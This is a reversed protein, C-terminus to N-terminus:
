VSAEDEKDLSVKLDDSTEAAAAAEAERREAQARAIVQHKLEIAQFLDTLSLNAKITSAIRQVASIITLITWSEALYPEAGLQAEMSAFANDLNFDLIMEGVGITMVSVDTVESEAKKEQIKALVEEFKDPAMTFEVSVCLHVRGVDNITEEDERLVGGSRFTLTDLYEATLGTEEITERYAVKKVLESFQELTLNYVTVGKDGPVMHVDDSATVGEPLDDVSDIHGGFGVSTNGQLRAEGEGQAPRRYKVYKLASAVPDYTVFSVYPILQLYGHEEDECVDRPIFAVPLSVPENKQQAENAAALASLGGLLCLAVKSM